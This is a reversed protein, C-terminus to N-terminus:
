NENAIKRLLLCTLHHRESKEAKKAPYLRKGFTWFEGTFVEYYEQSVIEIPNSALWEEIQERSYVQTVFNADKGYGAEPHDYINPHYTSENYPFTLVLHGGDELLSVMNKVALTHEPIHELVSLCTIFPFREVIRTATIDDNEIRFHRNVFGSSWYEGIKDIATVKFGCNHLIHPWSSKGAGVDLIKEPWLDRLCDFVFGYEIPRENVQGFMPKAKEASLLPKLYLRAGLNYLTRFSRRIFNM